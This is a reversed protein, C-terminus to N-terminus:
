LLTQILRATEEPQELPFLHGAPFPVLQFNPLARQWWAVDSKWFLDSTEGYIMYGKLTKLNKPAKTQTSRFIEIETEKSFALELAGNGDPQLGHQLYDEFCRPHFLQFLRRQLFYERATARDPFENRRKLAKPTPGLKNAFGLQTALRIATRKWNSFFAPEILIVESFLDPRRSAALLTAVAGSSHGMGIVPGRQSQDLTHILESALNNLSGNVQFDAHGLREIANVEMDEM